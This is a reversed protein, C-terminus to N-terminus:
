EAEFTGLVLYRGIREPLTVASFVFGQCFDVSCYSFYHVREDELAWLLAAVHGPRVLIQDPMYSFANWRRAFCCFLLLLALLRGEGVEAGLLQLRERLDVNVLFVGLLNV